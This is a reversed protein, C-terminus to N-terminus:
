NEHLFHTVQSSFLDNERVGGVSGNNKLRSEHTEIWEKEFSRVVFSSNDRFNHSLLVRLVNIHQSQPLTMCIYVCYTMFDNTIRVLSKM